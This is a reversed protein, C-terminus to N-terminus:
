KFGFYQLSKQSGTLLAINESKPKKCVTANFENLLHTSCDALEPSVYIDLTGDNKNFRSFLAFEKPAAKIMIITEFDNQIKFQKENTDDTNAIHINYWDM